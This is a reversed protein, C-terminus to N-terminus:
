ISSPYFRFMKGSSFASLSGHPKNYNQPNSCTLSLSSEKTMCRKLLRKQWSKNQPRNSSHQGKKSVTKLYNSLTKNAENFLSDGIISFPKNLPPGRLQRHLATCIATASKKNNFTRDQKRVSLYFKQLYKNLQGPTM